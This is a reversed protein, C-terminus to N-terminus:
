DRLLFPCSFPNVCFNQTRVIEHLSKIRILFLSWKWLQLQVTFTVTRKGTLHTRRVISSLVFSDDGSPQSPIIQAPKYCRTRWCVHQHYKVKEPLNEAVARSFTVCSFFPWLFLKLLTQSLRRRWKGKWKVTQSHSLCVFTSIYTKYIDIFCISTNYIFCTYCM